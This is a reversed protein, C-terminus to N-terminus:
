SNAEETRPRGWRARAAKQARETRQQETLRAASAKGGNSAGLSAMTRAANSVSPDVTDREERRLPEKYRCEDTIHTARGKEAMDRSNDKATGLFLHEPNVCPPNDCKHLVWLGDPINGNAVTWAFRHAMTPKGEVSFAGYGQGNKAGTWLLCKSDLVSHPVDAWKVYKAFRAKDKESPVLMHMHYVERICFCRSFKEFGASAHSRLSAARKPIETLSSTRLIM